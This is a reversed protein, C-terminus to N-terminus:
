TDLTDVISVTGIIDRLQRQNSSAVNSYISNNSNYIAAASISYQLTKNSM